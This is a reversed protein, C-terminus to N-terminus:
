EPLVVAWAGDVVKLIKGNDDSTVAPLKVPLVAKAWSGEVVTLVDGNDESTVEPLDSGSGGGDIKALIERATEESMLPKRYQESLNVGETETSNGGLKNAIAKGTEDSMLPKRYQESINSM